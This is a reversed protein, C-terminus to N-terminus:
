IRYIFGFSWSLGWVSWYGCSFTLYRLVDSKFDNRDNRTIQQERLGFNTCKKGESSPFCLSRTMSQTGLTTCYMFSYSVPTSSFFDLTTVEGVGWKWPIFNLNRNTQTQLGYYPSDIVSQCDTPFSHPIHFLITSSNHGLAHWVRWGEILYLAPKTEIGRRRLRPQLNTGTSM